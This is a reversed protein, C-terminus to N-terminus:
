HQTAVVIVFEELFRFLFTSVDVDVGLKMALSMCM